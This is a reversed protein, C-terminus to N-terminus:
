RGQTRTLVTDVMFAVFEDPQEFLPRHGSTDFRAVEADPADIMAFWEEFIEARGRAEHVGQAFYVPVEFETASERFDIGQLQPYLLSFTDM